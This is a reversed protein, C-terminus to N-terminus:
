WQEAPAEHRFEQGAGRFAGGHFLDDVPMPSASVDFNRENLIISGTLGSDSNVGVGFKLSGTNAEHVEILVDKGLGTQVPPAAAPAITAMGWLALASLLGVPAFRHM